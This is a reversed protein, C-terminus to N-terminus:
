EIYGLSKLEEKLTEDLGTRLTSALAAPPPYEGDHLQVPADERLAPRGTWLTSMPLGLIAAVTPAVDLVSLSDTKAAFAAMPGALVYVGDPAHEGSFRAEARAAILSDFGHEHGALIIKADEPVENRPAIELKLVNGERAVAFVGSSEGEVHAETLVSELRRLTEQREEGTGSAIELYVKQDLNTGLVIEEVDLADILSEARIRCFSGMIKRLAPRFGHDSVIVVNADHPVVALIKGVCRDAEEYALQISLGLRQAEEPAVGPFLDPDRYKWYLHSVKDVQNFLVAGFEPRRSRLLESFMDSQIAASMRRTTHVRDIDLHGEGSGRALVLLSRRLTSLRVGSRLANMLCIIPAESSTARGSHRAWLEWFFGCSPPLASSDPALTSPVVFDSTSLGAPPPWTFYWGCTGATRGDMWMRDWIRGVRFDAQSNAWGEVGNVEPPCGTAIASWVQPSLMSPLSRLKASHGKELLRAMNPMGGAAMTEDVCQWSAGDIGILVTLTGDPPPEPQPPLLVIVLACACAAGACRVAKHPSRPMFVLGIGVACAVPLLWLAIPDGHGFVIALWAFPFAAAAGAGLFPRVLGLLVIVLTPAVALLALATLFEDLTLPSALRVSAISFLSSMLASALLAQVASPRWARPVPPAHRPSEGSSATTELNM